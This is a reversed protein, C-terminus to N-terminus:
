YNDGWRARLGFMGSTYFGPTPQDPPGFGKTQTQITGTLGTIVGLFPHLTPNPKWVLRMDTRVMPAIDFQTSSAVHPLLRFRGALSFNRSLDYNAAVGLDLGTGLGFTFAIGMSVRVDLDNQQVAIYSAALSGQTLLWPDCVAGRQLSFFDTRYGLRGWHGETSLDLDFGLPDSGGSIVPGATTPGGSVRFRANDSLYAPIGTVLVSPVAFLKTTLGTPNCVEADASSATLLVAFFVTVVVSRRYCASM